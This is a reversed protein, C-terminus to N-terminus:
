WNGYLAINNANPSTRMGTDVFEVPDWLDDGVGVRKEAYVISKLYPMTEGSTSDNTLVRKGAAVSGVIRGDSAHLNQQSRMIFSKYTVGKVTATGYPRLIIPTLVSSAPAHLYGTAMAGSPAMFYVAYLSGENGRLTFFERPMIDGIKQNSSNYVPCSGGSLNVCCSNITAM